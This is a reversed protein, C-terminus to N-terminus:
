RQGFINTDDKTTVVPEGAPQSRVQQAEASTLSMDPMM